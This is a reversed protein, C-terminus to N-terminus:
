RSSPSRPRSSARSAASASRGLARSRPRPAPRSGATSSRATRRRSRGACSSRRRSGAAPRLVRRPRREAARQGVHRREQEAAPQVQTSRDLVGQRRGSSGCPLSTATAPVPWSTSSVSKLPQEAVASRRNMASLRDAARRPCDLPLGAAATGGRAEVVEARRGADAAVAPARQEGHEVRGRVRAQGRQLLEEGPQTRPPPRRPPLKRALRARPAGAAACSRRRARGARSRTPGVLSPVIEPVTRTLPVAWPVSRSRRLPARSPFARRADRASGAWAGRPM